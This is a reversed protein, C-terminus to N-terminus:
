SRQDYPAAILYPYGNFGQYYQPFFFRADPVYDPQYNSYAVSRSYPLPQDYYNLGPNYGYHQGAAVTPILLLLQIIEQSFLSFIVIVLSVFLINKLEQLM